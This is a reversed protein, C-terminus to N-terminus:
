GAPGKDRVSVWEDLNKGDFLVIADSPADNNSTAGPTVVKPVPGWVETAEPRSPQQAAVHLSSAPSIALALLILARRHWAGATTRHTM